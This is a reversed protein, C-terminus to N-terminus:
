QTVLDQIENECRHKHELTLAQKIIDICHNLSNQYRSKDPKESQIRNALVTYISAAKLGLSSCVVFLTAAEMEYNLVHLKQWEELSGQYHKRVYGSFSDYREQGPYFTDSSATIGLRVDIGLEKAAQTLAMTLRFDAVAPYEAPAYHYSAGDLRVASSSIIIDGINISPQIAGTTGIRIFNEVGLMALEEIAIATSPGGIGTSCVVVKEGNLDVLASCYERNHSLPIYNSDLHKAIVHVRGPDGPLIASKAGQLNNKSLKVHYIVEDTDLQRKM